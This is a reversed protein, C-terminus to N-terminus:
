ILEYKRLYRTIGKKVIESFTPYIFIMDALSKISLKQKIALTFFQIWEGAHIGIADAGLIVDNQDMVIKLFGETEGATKFRDVSNTDVRFINLDKHVIRAEKESLGVHGIEPDMFIAWPVISLDNKKTNGSLINEICIEAQYSAIHTFKARTAVDGCAYIHPARTQLYENTIVGYNSYEVGANELDLGDINPTRGLAAFIEEAKMETVQGQQDLSIKINGKSVQMCSTIESNTIIKIGDKKLFDVAIKGVDEDLVKLIRDNRDIITVNSGFRALSQGIEASIVGGGLFVVSKPQKRLDWFNQNDIFQLTKSGKHSAMRPSSGTSIIFHEAVVVDDGIQITHPDLFCAGTPHVFVDIGLNQFIEPQEHEYIEQVVDDVHKMVNEFVANGTVNITPLGYLEAKKMSHFLRTSNILTKSPVCGYHTCEGGIKNKEILATKAGRRNGSLAAVLGGSGAGIVVLDYKKM